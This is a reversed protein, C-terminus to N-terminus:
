SDSYTLTEIPDVRVVDVAHAENPVRPTMGAMPSTFM